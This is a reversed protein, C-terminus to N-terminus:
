EIFRGGRAVLYVGNPIDSKVIHDLLWGRLFSMVKSASLEGGGELTKRFAGVQRALEAHELQHAQLTPCHYDELLQEEHRFHQHTYDVLADFVSLLVEETRRERIAEYVCNIQTVLGKHEADLVVVGTEYCAKWDIM